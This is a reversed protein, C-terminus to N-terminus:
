SVKCPSQLGSLPPDTIVLIVDQGKVSIAHIHVDKDRYIFNLRVEPAQPCVQFSHQMEEDWFLRM